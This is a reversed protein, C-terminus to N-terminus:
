ITVGGAHSSLPLFADLEMDSATGSDVLVDWTNGAWPQVGEGLALWSVIAHHETCLLVLCYEWPFFFM